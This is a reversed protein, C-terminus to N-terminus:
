LLRVRLILDVSSMAREELARFVLLFGGRREGGFGDGGPWRCGDAIGGDRAIVEDVFMNEPPDLAVPNRM